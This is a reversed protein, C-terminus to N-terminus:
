ARRRSELRGCAPCQHIEEILMGGFDRAAQAAESATVPVVPKEAHPNMQAGCASCNMRVIGTSQGSPTM